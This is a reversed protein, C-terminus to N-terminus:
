EMDRIIETTDYGSMEPMQIDMFIIDFGEENLIDLTQKGNTAIKLAINKRECLKMMLVGSVYDDEVLLASADSSTMEPVDENNAKDIETADMLLMFIASFSFESGVGLKSEVSIEGDMMNILQKSIALGLGTGGYKKSVSDDGQTFYTFLHGIKDDAIGIGTDKISFILQVRDKYVKGKAISLEISGHETFKISNGLLNFLIQKIRGSDGMFRGLIHKDIRFTYELRKQVTLPYIVRNVENVLTNLDFEELSLRVKGAEIRSIDLIDDIITLLHDGSTKIITAMEKQEDQLNMVLLQAMGLIGNMPTRIEHSMNALFQSKAKNASKATETTLRLSEEYDKNKTIDDAVGVSRIFRGNKDYIPFTRSWIWRIAGDSRIIRFQEEFMGKLIHSDGLYAQVIRDKDDPHISETFSLPDDYVSQCTKGWIKEYTPNVYTYKGDQHVWIVEGLNEALEKFKEESEKLKIESLKRQTIDQVVGYRRVQKGSADYEYKMKEHIWITENDQRIIRFDFESENGNLPEKLINIVYEEDDPHIIKLFDNVTPIFAQPKYGCIRFIEDSWSYEGSIIDLEWYGLHAFEQAGLLQEKTQQLQEAQIEIKRLYEKSEEEMAKRTYVENELQINVTSLEYTREFVRKELNDHADRLERQIQKTESINQFIFVTGFEDGFEDLLVSSSNLVPIRVDYKSILDIESTCFKTLEAKDSFVLNVPQGKIETEEYGLLQLAGRNASMIKGEQDSIILGENMIKLVDLVVSEATLSMLRYKNVSYWIGGIAILMFAIGLPPVLAIGLQPLLVDTISGNMITIVFSYAIIKALRKERQLSSKNGWDLILLISAVMYSIYYINFFSGWLLGRNTPYLFSWGYSIRVIDVPQFCYLYTSVVAPIFLAIHHWPKKLISAKKTLYMIFYLVLSYISSWSLTSLKNYISATEPDTTATMLAYCFAWMSLDLCVIFFINNIKSKANKTIISIGMFIYVSGCILYIFMLAIM